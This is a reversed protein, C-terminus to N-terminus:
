YLVNQFYEQFYWKYGKPKWAKTKLAFSIAGNDALSLLVDELRPYAFSCRHTKKERNLSM